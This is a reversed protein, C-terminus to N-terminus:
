TVMVAWFELELFNAGESPNRWCRCEEVVYVYVYNFYISIFNEFYVKSINLHSFVFKVLGNSTM